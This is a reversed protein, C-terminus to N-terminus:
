FPSGRGPIIWCFRCRHPPVARQQRDPGLLPAFRKLRQMTGFDLDRNRLLEYPPRRAYVMGYEADHRVIPTGRLRKLIGVQIEQPGLGGCVTSARRSARRGEGPLGFILDAHM